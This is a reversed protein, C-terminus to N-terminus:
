LSRQLWRTHLSFGLDPRRKSRPTVGPIEDRPIKFKIRQARSRAFFKLMFLPNDTKSDLPQTHMNQLVLRFFATVFLRIVLKFQRKLPSRCSKSCSIPVNSEDRQPKERVFLFAAAQTTQTECSSQPSGMFDFM